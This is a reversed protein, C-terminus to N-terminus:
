MYFFDNFFDRVNRKTKKKKKKEKGSAKKQKKRRKKKNKKRTVRFEKPQGSGSLQLRDEEHFNLDFFTTTHNAINTINSM